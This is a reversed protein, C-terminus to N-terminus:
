DHQRVLFPIQIRESDHVALSSIGEPAAGQRRSSFDASESEGGWRPTQCDIEIVQV